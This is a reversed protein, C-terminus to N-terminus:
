EFANGAAMLQRRHELRESRNIGLVAITARGVATRAVLRPGDWHFHEHWRDTRPHFLAAIAGNQPDIGSLNPGKYVNCNFCSLALNDLSDGGGHKRPLIHDIQFPLADFERPLRCYECRRGARDAVLERTAGDM